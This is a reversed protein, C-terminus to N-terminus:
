LKFLCSWYHISQNILQRFKIIIIAMAMAMTFTPTSKFNFLNLFDSFLNPPEKTTLLLLQQNLIFNLLKASIHDNIILILDYVRM